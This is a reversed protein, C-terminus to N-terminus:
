FESPARHCAVIEVKDMGTQISIYRSELLDYPSVIAFEESNSLADGMVCFIGLVRHLLGKQLGELM